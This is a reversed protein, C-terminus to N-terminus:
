SADRRAKRRDVIDQMLRGVTDSDLKRVAREITKENRRRKWDRFANKFKDKISIVRDVINILKRVVDLIM